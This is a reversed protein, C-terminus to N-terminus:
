NINLIWINKFLISLEVPLCLNLLMEQNQMNHDLIRGTSYKENLYILKLIKIIKIECKALPLSPPILESPFWFDYNYAVPGCCKYAWEVLKLNKRKM